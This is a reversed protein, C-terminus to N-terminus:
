DKAKGISIKELLSESTNFQFYVYVGASQMRYSHEMYSDTLKWKKLAKKMVSPTLQGNVKLKDVKIEGTYTGKPMVENKDEPLNFYFQIESVLTSNTPNFLVIGKEDYSFTTNYGERERAKGLANKIDVLQWEGKLKVNDIQLLGKKLKVKHNNTDATFAFLGFVTFLLLNLKLLKKM